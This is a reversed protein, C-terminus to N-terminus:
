RHKTHPKCVNQSCDEGAILLKIDEPNHAGCLAQNTQTNVFAPVAAFGGCAESVIEEYQKFLAENEPHEWVELKQIEIGLESELKAIIPRMSICHPCTEGYFEIIHELKKM